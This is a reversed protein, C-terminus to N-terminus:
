RALGAHGTIESGPEFRGGLHQALFEEAKAYFHFKNEPRWQRHGEDEYIVYEVAKNANRMATVMQESESAVVRADNIGHAILLPAKIKDVHFLPSRSKLFDEEKQPDGVRARFRPKFLSWYPPYNNYHSILNSIGVSSIGAAFIDPTLTLGVLTSYGGYSAGMIAIKRPDAIGSQILWNVGDILDDHMKGGWEKYSALIFKRGYGLSGRYNVQLVAYGRNALWQVTNYYGWRDRSHPGGHVYLVTPLQKTPIGVPVTLYGHIELGDRAQYSIPQMRALTFEELKPQESFLFTAQKSERDYAYHHVPGEDNEYSVIWTKDQLDRRGLSESFLIPSEYPPHAVSFEGTRLKALIAFDEAITQDLVQWELKEKYFGVAQIEGTNPQLWVDQVDYEADWAIPTENGTAMDIAFLAGTNGDYSARMYFTKEDRSLGIYKGHEGAQWSRLTRWPRRDADRIITGAFAAAIRVNLQSDAVWWFQRGGNRNIMRTEGTKLHIRYVDFFRRNRLNMAVLVENPHGPSMAVLLSRVGKYPTLNRITRSNIDVTCIQWNEDGDTERAFILHQNDYAWTYHQVGRKSAATLQRNDQGGKAHVWVQLVRNKDPALYSFYEGDPSIQPDRRVPNGFLLERPILPPPQVVTSACGILLLLVTTFFLSLTTKLALNGGFKFPGIEAMPGTPLGRGPRPTSEFVSPDLVIRRLLQPTFYRLEIIPTL